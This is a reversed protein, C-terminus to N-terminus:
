CKECKKEDVTSIVLVLATRSLFVSQLRLCLFVRSNEYALSQIECEDADVDHLNAHANKSIALGVEFIAPSMALM